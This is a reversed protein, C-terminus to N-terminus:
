TVEAEGDSGWVSYNGNSLVSSRGISDTRNESGLEGGCSRVAYQLHDHPSQSELPPPPTGHTATEGQWPRSADSASLIVGEEAAGVDRESYPRGLRYTSSGSRDTVSSCYNEYSGIERALGGAHSPGGTVGISASQWRRVLARPRPFPDESLSPIDRSSKAIDHRPSGASSNSSMSHMSAGTSISAGSLSGGLNSLSFFDPLPGRSGMKMVPVMYQTREGELGLGEQNLESASGTAISDSRAM